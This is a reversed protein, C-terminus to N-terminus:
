SLMKKIKNCYDRSSSISTYIALNTHVVVVVEVVVRKRKRRKQEVVEVVVREVDQEAVEVKRKKM